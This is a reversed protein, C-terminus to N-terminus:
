KWAAGGPGKARKKRAAKDNKGAAYFVVCAGGVAALVVRGLPVARMCLVRGDDRHRVGDGLAQNELDHGPKKM